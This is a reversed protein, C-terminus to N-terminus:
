WVGWGGDVKLCQGTVYSSLDSALYVVGGIIDSETAMRKLPTRACYREIFEPPQNRLIGGPAISNVRISPALSTALWRTLQILGAKSSSYAAPNNMSTGQYLTFDPAYEGYISSITVVSSSSSLTLSPLLGQTLHFVSTLNVEFFTQFTSSNRWVFLDSVTANTSVPINTLPQKISRQFNRFIPPILSMIHNTASLPEKDNESSAM